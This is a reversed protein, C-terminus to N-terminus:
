HQSQGSSSEPATPKAASTKFSSWYNPGNGLAQQFLDFNHQQAHSLQEKKDKKGFGQDWLIKDNQIWQMMRDREKDFARKQEHLQTKREFLEKSSEQLVKSQRSMEEAKIILGQRLKVNALAREKLEEDHRRLVDEQDKLM